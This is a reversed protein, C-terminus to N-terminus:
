LFYPIAQMARADNWENATIAKEVNNLWEQADDKKSTFKELKAIPIYAMPDLNPQQSPQFPQQLPQQLLIQQQQILEIPPQDIIIVYPKLLDKKRQKSQFPFQRFTLTMTSTFMDTLIINIASGPTYYYSLNIPLEIRTKKWTLLQIEKSMVTPTQLKEKGKDTYTIFFQQQTYREITQNIKKIIPVFSVPLM